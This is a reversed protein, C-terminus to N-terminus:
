TQTWDEGPSYFLDLVNQLFYSSKKYTFFFLLNIIFPPFLKPFTMWGLVALQPQQLWHSLGRELSSVWHFIPRRLVNLTLMNLLVDNSGRWWIWVNRVGASERLFDERFRYIICLKVQGRQPLIRVGGARYYSHPWHFLYNIKITIFFDNIPKTVYYLFLPPLLFLTFRRWLSLQFPPKVSGVAVLCVTWFLTKM